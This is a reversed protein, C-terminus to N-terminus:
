CVLGEAQPHTGCGIVWQAWARCSAWGATRTTAGVCDAQM